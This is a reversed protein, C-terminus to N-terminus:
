GEYNNGRWRVYLDRFEEQTTRETIAKTNFADGNDVEYDSYYNKDYYYKREPINNWLNSSREAVENRWPVLSSRPFLRHQPMEWAYYGCHVCCEEEDVETPHFKLHRQDTHGRGGSLKHKILCTCYFERNSKSM